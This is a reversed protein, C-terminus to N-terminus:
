TAIGPSNSVSIRHLIPGHLGPNNNKSPFITNEEYPHTGIEPDDTNSHVANLGPSFDDIRNKILLGRVPM